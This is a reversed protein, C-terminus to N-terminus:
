RKMKSKPRYKGTAKGPEAAQTRYLGSMREGLGHSYATPHMSLQMSKACSEVDLNNGDEGKEKEGKPGDLIIDHLIKPNKQVGEGQGRNFSFVIDM